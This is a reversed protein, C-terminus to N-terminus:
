GSRATWDHPPGIEPETAAIRLLNESREEGGLRNPQRRLVTTAGVIGLGLGLATVLAFGLGGGLQALVAGPCAGTIAWGAGFVLSGLVVNRDPRQRAVRHGGLLRLGVATFVVAGGFTLLLRLDALTMMARVQVGDAFGMAVLAYGLGLGLFVRRLITM